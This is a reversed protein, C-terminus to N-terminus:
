AYYQQEQLSRQGPLSGLILLRADGRAAPPFGSSRAVVSAGSRPSSM